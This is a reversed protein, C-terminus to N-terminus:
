KVSKMHEKTKQEAFDSIVPIVVKEGTYAMYIGYVWGAFFLLNVIPSLFYLFFISFLLEVGFAVVAYAIAMFSNYILGEDKAYRKDSLFIIAPIVLWALAAYLKSDYISETKKPKQNRAM